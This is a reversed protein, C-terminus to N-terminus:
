IGEFGVLLVDEKRAQRRRSVMAKSMVKDWTIIDISAGVFCLRKLMWCSSRNQACMQAPGAQSSQEATM